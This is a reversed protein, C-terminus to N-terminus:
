SLAFPIPGLLPRVLIEVGARAKNSVEWIRVAEELRNESGYIVEVVVDVVGAQIGADPVISLSGTADPGKAHLFFANPQNGGSGVLLRTTTTRSYLPIGYPRRQSDDKPNWRHPSTDPLPVITASGGKTPTPHAQCAINGDTWHLLSKNSFVESSRVWDADTSWDGDSLSDDPWILLGILFALVLLALAGVAILKNRRTWLSTRKDHSGREVDRSSSASYAPPPLLLPAREDVSPQFGDQTDASASTSSPQHRQQEVPPPSQQKSSGKRDFVITM